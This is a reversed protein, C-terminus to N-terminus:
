IALRVSVMPLNDLGTVQPTTVLFNIDHTLDTEHTLATKSLGNKYDTLQVARLIM